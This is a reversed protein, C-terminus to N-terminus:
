VHARGIQVINTLENNEIENEQQVQNISTLVINTLENNEIENESQAQNISTTAEEPATNTIPNQKLAIFDRFVENIQRQIGKKENPSIKEYLTLFSKLWTDENNM